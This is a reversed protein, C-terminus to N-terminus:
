ELLPETEITQGWDVDSWAEIWAPAEGRVIFRKGDHERWGTENEGHSGMRKMAPYSAPKPM